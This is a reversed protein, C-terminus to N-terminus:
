AACDVAECNMLGFCARAMSLLSGDLLIGSCLVRVERLSRM